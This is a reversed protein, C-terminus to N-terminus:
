SLVKGVEKEVTMKGVRSTDNKKPPSRCAVHFHGEEVCNRCTPLERAPCTKGEPHPWSGGCWHCTNAARKTPKSTAEQNKNGQATSGPDAAQAVKAKWENNEGKKYTSTTPRATSSMEM